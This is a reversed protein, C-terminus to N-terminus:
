ITFSSEAFPVYEEVSVSNDPQEIAEPVDEIELFDVGYEYGGAGTSQIKIKDGSKLPTDLLFHVEDFAFAGIAGASDSPSGSGFNFYQWMWFSDLKVTKVKKNNVYVDLSGKVGTGGNGDPLTFRMTVGAGTTKMTWEVSSGSGPLGVYSQASAQTAINNPNWDTSTKLIAGGSLVADTSDYRTYPMKAGVRGNADAAPITFQDAVGAAKVEEQCKKLAVPQVTMALALTVALVKKVIKRM